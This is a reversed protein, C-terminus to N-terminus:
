FFVNGCYERQKPSALKGKCCILSNEKCACAGFCEKKRMQVRKTDWVVFALFFSMNSLYLIIVCVAAFMCFSRLAELSSIAAIAFASSTALSAITIEPGAHTLAEHIRNYAEQKLDTQDVANCIVFIHDVGIAMLLFPLWSHFGSTKAGCYYLIGFGAFSSLIISLIGGIAVIVRCHIPSFSGLFMIVYLGM